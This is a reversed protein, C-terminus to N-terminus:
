IVEKKLLPIGIKKCKIELVEAIEKADAVSSPVQLENIKAKLGEIKTPIHEIFAKFEESESGGKFFVDLDWVVPYETAKM